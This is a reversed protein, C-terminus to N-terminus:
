NVLSNQGLHFNNKDYLVLLYSNYKGMASIWALGSITKKVAKMTENKVEM